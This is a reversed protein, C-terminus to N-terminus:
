LPAHITYVKACETHTYLAIASSPLIAEEYYYYYIIINNNNYEDELEGDRSM